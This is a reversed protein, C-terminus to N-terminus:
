MTVAMTNHDCSGLEAAVQQLSDGHLDVLLDLSLVTDFAAV